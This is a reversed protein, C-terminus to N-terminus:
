QHVRRGFADDISMAGDVTMMRLEDAVLSSCIVGRCDAMRSNAEKNHLGREASWHPPQAAPRTPRCRCVQRIALLWWTDGSAQPALVAPTPVPLCGLVSEFAESM